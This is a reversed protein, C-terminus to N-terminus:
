QRNFDDTIRVIDDEGLYDGKQVEIFVCPELGVAEARHKEGIQIQITEGAKLEIENGELTVQCVGSVVTWVESRHNHYQYSLRKGPLVTIRKVKYGEGAALVEFAGWPREENERALLLGEVIKWDSPEDIEYYSEESCEVLSIRGSVRCRSKLIDKVRSIYFAGNEVLHGDWEQRRPRSLLDYSPQGDETWLFRKQRVVSLASDFEGSLVMEIGKDLEETKLLPSTAQIFVILDGPSQKECFELLAMESSAEDTATEKSRRFIECGSLVKSYEDSDTSVVVKEVLKSSNAINIARQTLPSGAFPKINKNPISKSGSRIPIFTKITASKKQKSRLYDVLNVVRGENIWKQIIEGEKKINHLINITSTNIKTDYYHKYESQDRLGSFFDFGHIFVNGGQKLCHYILCFGSTANELGFEKGILKTDIKEFEKSGFTKEYVKLRENIYKENRESKCYTVFHRKALNLKGSKVRRHAEASTNIVIEDVKQGSCNDIKGEFGSFRIVKGFSDIIEGLEFLNVMQGSGVILTESDLKLELVDLNIKVVDFSEKIQECKSIQKRGQTQHKQISVAPNRRVKRRIMM